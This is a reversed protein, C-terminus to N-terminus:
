TPIRTLRIFGPLRATADGATGGTGALFSSTAASNNWASVNLTHSAATPTYDRCLYIPCAGSAPMEGLTGLVTAGDRLNIFMQAVGATLRPCFFEVRHPVAELVIAGLTVIQTATGVSTATVSATATFEAYGVEALFDFNDALENWNSSTVKYNTTRTAVNHWPM